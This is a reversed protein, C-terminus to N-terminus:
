QEFCYLALPSGCSELARSGWIDDKWANPSGRTYLSNTSASTFGNCNDAANTGTSVTATAVFESGTFTGDAGLSIQAHTGNPSPSANDWLDAVSAAVELGDPRYWPGTMSYNAFYQRASTVSSSVWARFTGTLKGAAEDNCITDAAAHVSTAAAAFDGTYVATTAFVVKGGSPIARQVNAGAGPGVQACYLPLTSSCPTTFAARYYMWISRYEGVSGPLGAGGPAVTATWGDCDAVNGATGTWAIAAAPDFNSFSRSTGYETEDISARLNGLVLDVVTDAVPTGDVLAWPGDADSLRDYADVATADDHGSILAWYTGSPLSATEAAQQCLTDAAQRWDSAAFAGGLANAAGVLDGTFSDNTVFVIHPAAPGGSDPGDVGGDTAGAGADVGGIGGGSGGGPAGGDPSGGAAGGIAATGAAGGTAATGAAGGTAATGAAGGTAATGAAGGTAATGAAGGTAAGAAGGSGQGALGGGGGTSGAGGGVGATATGGSGGPSHGGAAAM